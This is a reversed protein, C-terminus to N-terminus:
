NLRERFLGRILEKRMVKIGLRLVCSHKISEKKLGLDLQNYEELLKDMEVVSRYMSKALMKCQEM